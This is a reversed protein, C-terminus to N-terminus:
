HGQNSINFQFTANELYKWHYDESSLERLVKVAYFERLTTDPRNIIESDGTLWHTQWIPPSKQFDKEENIDPDM